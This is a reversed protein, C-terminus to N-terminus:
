RWAQKWRTARLIPKESLLRRGQKWEGITRQYAERSAVTGHKGLYLDRGDITVVAQGTRKHLRYVPPRSPSCSKPM